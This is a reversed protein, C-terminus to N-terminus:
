QPKHDHADAHELSSSNHVATDENEVCERSSDTLFFSYVTSRIELELKRSSYKKM